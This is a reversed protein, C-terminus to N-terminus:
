GRPPEEGKEGGLHGLELHAAQAGVKEGDALRVETFRVALILVAVVYKDCRVFVVAGSVRLFHSFRPFRKEGAVRAEGEVRGGEEDVPDVPHSHAGLIM